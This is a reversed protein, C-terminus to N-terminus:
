AKTKKVAIAKKGGPGAKERPGSAKAPIGKTHSSVSALFSDLDAVEYARTKGEQLRIAGEAKLVATLLAPSNASKGRYIPILTTSTLGKKVHPSQLIKTIAAIPVWQENFFGGGSNAVLRIAVNAADDTGVEYTLQGRGSLTPCTGTKLVRVAPTDTTM